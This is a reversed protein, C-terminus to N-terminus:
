LTGKEKGLIVGEETAGNDTTPIDRQKRLTGVAMTVIDQEWQKVMIPGLSVGLLMEGSLTAVAM